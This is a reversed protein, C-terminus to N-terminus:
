LEHADERVRRRQLWRVGLTDALGLATRELGYKSVGNRRPRHGIEVEVVRGGAVSVLTPLFRHMGEFPVIHRVADARCVKMGSASDRIPSGTLVRRVGNGLRSSVRRLWSDQRRVRLGNVCDVGDGDVLVDWLRGIDSPDNQLDADFFAVVDARAARVGALWAASKGAHAGLAVVRLSPHAGKLAVLIAQSADTSGDDVCVIEYPKALRDLAATTEKVLAEVCGEENYVPVVVTIRPTPAGSV